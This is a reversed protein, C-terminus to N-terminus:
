SREQESKLLKEPKANVLLLVYRRLIELIYLFSNGGDM